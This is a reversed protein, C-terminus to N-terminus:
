PILRGDAAQVLCWGVAGARSARAPAKTQVTRGPPKRHLLRFLTGSQRRPWGSAVRLGHPLWGTPVGFGGRLWGSAVRLSGPPTTLHGNGGLSDGWFVARGSELPIGLIALFLTGPEVGGFRRHNQGTECNWQELGQYCPRRQPESKSSRFRVGAVFGSM